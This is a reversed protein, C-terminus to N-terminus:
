RRGAGGAALDWQGSQLHRRVVAMRKRAYRIFRAREAQVFRGQEDSEIGQQLEGTGAVAHEDAQRLLLRLRQGAQGVDTRGSMRVGMGGGEAVSLGLGDGEGSQEAEGRIDPMSGM